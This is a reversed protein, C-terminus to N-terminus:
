PMAVFHPSDHFLPPTSTFPDESRVVRLNPREQCEVMYNQQLSARYGVM